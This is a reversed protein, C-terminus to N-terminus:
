KPYFSTKRRGLSRIWQKCDWFIWGPTNATVGKRRLTEADSPLRGQRGSTIADNLAILSEVLPYLRIGLGFKLLRSIQLGVQMSQVLKGVVPLDQIFISGHNHSVFIFWFIRQPNIKEINISLFCWIKLM